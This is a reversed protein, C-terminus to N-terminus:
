QQPNATVVPPTGNETEQIRDLKLYWGRVKAGNMSDESPMLTFTRIKSLEKLTESPMLWVGEPMMKGIATGPSRKAGKGDLLLRPNGAMLENNGLFLIINARKSGENAGM